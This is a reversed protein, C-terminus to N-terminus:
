SRCKKGPQQCGSASLINVMHMRLHGHQIGITILAKIASFHNAMGVTAAMMMLESAGPNGLMDFSWKALPHLRTLGGVTGLAVPIRLGFHFREKDLTVYSLGRYQGDRAAYAHGNAEVARFDNATALMLADVGNYIGKNHTVARYPDILAIDVAKKFKLPM